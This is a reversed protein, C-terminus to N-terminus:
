VFMGGFTESLLPRTRDRESLVGVPLPWEIAVRPDLPHIGGENSPSYFADHVYMMECDPALTQFGHAFGRPILLACGNDASLYEAHWHLFTPSDARLDVAVDWVEGRTCSVLKVEAHPPYQFHLGRVSGTTRTLTQNIQVVPRDWGAAALEEACFLRSFFGRSDECRGRSVVHLNSLKTARLDLSRM